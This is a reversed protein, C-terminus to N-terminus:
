NVHTGTNLIQNVTMFKYGQSKAYALMCPVAKVTEAHTGGDHLLAIYGPHLQQKFRQCLTYASARPLKWDGLDNDTHVNCVGRSSVYQDIATGRTLGPPRVSWPIVGIVALFDKNAQGFETAIVSPSYYAHTKAHNGIEHGRLFVRQAITPYKLVNNSVQFFTSRAGYTSLHNLIADTHVPWPGDDFTMAVVKQTTRVSKIPKYGCRARPGSNLLPASTSPKVYAAGAQMPAIVLCALLGVVIGWRLRNATFLKALM